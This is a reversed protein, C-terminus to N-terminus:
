LLTKLLHLTDTGGQWEVSIGSPYHIGALSQSSAPASELLIPDFGQLAPPSSQELKKVWYYFTSPTIQERLAFAKKILGSSQWSLYLQRM